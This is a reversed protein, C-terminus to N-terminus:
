YKNKLLREITPKPINLSASVEEFNMKPNQLAYDAVYVATESSETNNKIEQLYELNIENKSEIHIDDEDTYFSEIVNKFKFFKNRFWNVKGKNILDNEELKRLLNESAGLIEEANLKKKQIIGKSKIIMKTLSDTFIEINTDFIHLANKDNWEFVTFVSSRQLGEIAYDLMGQPGILTPWQMAAESIAQVGLRLMPVGNLEKKSIDSEGLYKEALLEIAKIDPSRSNNRFIFNNLVSIMRRIIDDNLDSEGNMYAYICLLALMPSETKHNAVYKILETSLEMENNQIKDTLIDIYKNVFNRSDFKRQSSLIIRLTGYLAQEGLTMFVQSHWNAFVQVPILQVTDRQRVKIYYIGPELVMNFAIFGVQNDVVSSNEDFIKILQYNEDYLSFSHYFGTPWYSKLNNFQEMNPFRFFVFLSSDDFGDEETEKLTSKQSLEMCSLSYYEHSSKYTYFNEDDFPISSYIMPLELIRSTQWEEESPPIRFAIKEDRYVRLIHDKLIGNLELRVTYIGTEVSLKEIKEAKFKKIIKDNGDFITVKLAFRYDSLSGFTLHVKGM